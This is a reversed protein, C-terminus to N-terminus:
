LVLFTINLNIQILIALAATIIPRLCKIMFSYVLVDNLPIIIWPGRWVTRCLGLFMSFPTTVLFLAIEPRLM